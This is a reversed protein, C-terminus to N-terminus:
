KDSKKEGPYDFFMWLPLVTIGDSYASVRQCVVLDNQFTLEYYFTFGSWHSKYYVGLLKADCIRKDKRLEDLKEFYLNANAIKDNPAFPVSVHFESSKGMQAKPTEAVADIVQARTMGVYNREPLARCGILLFLALCLFVKTNFLKKM